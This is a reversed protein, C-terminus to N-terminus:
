CDQSRMMDAWYKDTYWRVFAEALPKNKIYEQLTTTKVVLGDNTVGVVKWMFFDEEHPVVEISDFIDAEPLM